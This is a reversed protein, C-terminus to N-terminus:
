VLLPSNRSSPSQWQGKNGTQLLTTLEAREKVKPFTQKPLPKDLFQCLQHWPPTTCTEGECINLTLLDNSRGSFYQK